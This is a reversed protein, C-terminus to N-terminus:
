YAWEEAVQVALETWEWLRRPDNRCTTVDKMVFEVCNNRTKELIGELEARAADPQWTNWAFVAPNPKSSFVFEGGLEKSAIDVDIWGSMSVRRLRPIQKLIGMKNHLPECCGYCNLGFRELWRLEQQLCFEDHMAPSVESFIQGTCTGWQDIPRAHEGDFDGQPLEDTIGLGGSGVRHNYDGAALLGEEELQDLRALLADVMHSIGAKVFDPRDVMDLMMEEIGWWQVLVDWAACWMHTVGRTEVPIIDGILDATQTFQAETAQPDPTVVPMQIREIDAETKMIPIYDCSGQGYDGGKSDARRGEIGYGSDHHILPTYFVPDIVRDARLHNWNYLTVRLRDEISRCFEDQCVCTLEPENERLEWWPEENIFVMPREPKLANLATWLRRREAQEPLNAIEMVQEALERVIRRDESMNMM